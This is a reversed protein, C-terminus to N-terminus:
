ESVIWDPLRDLDIAAQRARREFGGVDVDGFLEGLQDDRLLGERGVGLHDGVASWIICLMRCIMRQRSRARRSSAVPSM